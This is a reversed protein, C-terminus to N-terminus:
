RLHSGKQLRGDSEGYILRKKGAEEAIRMVTDVSRGKSQEGPVLEMTVVFRSSDSIDERFSSGMKREM